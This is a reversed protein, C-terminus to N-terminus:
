LRGSSCGADDDDVDDVVALICQFLFLFLSCGDGGDDGAVVSDSSRCKQAPIKQTTASAAASAICGCGCYYSGRGSGCLCVSFSNINKHASLATNIARIIAAAAANCACDLLPSKSQIQIASSRAMRQQMMVKVMMLLSSASCSMLSIHSLVTLMALVM